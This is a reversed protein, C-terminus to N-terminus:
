VKVFQDANVIQLKDVSLEGDATLTLAFHPLPRPAPGNILAGNM